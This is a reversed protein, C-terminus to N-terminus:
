QIVFETFYCGKIKGTDLQRNILDIIEQQLMEKGKTEILEQITKSSLLIILINKLQPLKEVIEKELKVSEFEVSLTTKLFRRGETEAPNVVIPEFNYYSPIIKYSVPKKEPAVMPKIVQTVLVFAVVTLLLVMMVYVLAKSNKKPDSTTTEQAM